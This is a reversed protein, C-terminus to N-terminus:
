LQFKIIRNIADEPNNRIIEENEKMESCSFLTEDLESIIFDGDIKPAKKADELFRGTFFENHTLQSMLKELTERYVPM